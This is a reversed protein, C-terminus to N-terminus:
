RLAAAIADFAAYTEAEKMHDWFGDNASPKVIVLNDRPDAYIFRFFM